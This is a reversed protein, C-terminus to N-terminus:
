KGTEIFKIARELVEDKGAQIGKITPRVFIDPQVGVRQTRKGDPYSAIEESYWLTINGPIVFSTMGGNTGSTPSGILISNCSTKMKLAIDEGASQPAENILMVIKGPYIGEVNTNNINWDKNDSQDATSTEKFNNQPSGIAEINPSVAVNIIYKALVANKNKIIKRFDGYSHPHGRDDLIITKTNKFLKFMSDVDKDRLPSTLDAYGIDKSLLKFTPKVNQSYINLAYDDNYFDGNFEKLTPLDVDRIKKDAGQVKLKKIQGKDGFLLFKSIFFTQNAKTSASQYKRAEELQIMPDKGDVSLIVDGKKIGVKRCVSDNYIGTVVLKNEIANTIVPPVFIGRGQIIPNLKLSFTGYTIFGHSDSINSYLQAVARLYDLSDKAEIFKSITSRYSEEWSKDMLDKAPHFNDIEAFIKAAALIRYSLPPYNNEIRHDEWQSIAQPAVEASVTPNKFGNIIMNQALEIASNSNDIASYVANPHVISLSGDANVAEAVRLKIILSDQIYFSSTKGPVLVKGDSTIIAAVGKQQLAIAAFPVEDENKVIFVVPISKLAKGTVKFVSNQKFSTEYSGKHCVTRLSPVLMEGKFPFLLRDPYMITWDTITGSTPFYIFKSNDPKRMDFIIGKEKDINEYAKLITGYTNDNVDNINIYGISDKLNYTSPQMHYANDEKEPNMVTTLNDNLAFLMKRMVAAYENRNKAQIIEDVKSVFISDWNISQYQMYPHFYKIYGYVKGADALRNIQKTTLSQQAFSFISAFFLPIFIQLRM